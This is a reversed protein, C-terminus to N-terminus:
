NLTQLDLGGEIHYIVYKEVDYLKGWYTFYISIIDISSGIREQLVELLLFQPKYLFCQIRRLVWKDTRAFESFIEVECLSQLHGISTDSYHKIRTM